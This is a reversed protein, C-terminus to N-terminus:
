EWGYIYEPASIRKLWVRLTEVDAGEEDRIMADLKYTIDEVEFDAYEDATLGCYAALLELAQKPNYAAVIDNEGVQYPILKENAM